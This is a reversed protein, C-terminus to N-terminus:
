TYIKEIAKRGEIELIGAYVQTTRISAHGLQRQVFRYNNNSAKLLFTAYTHRLSHISYHSSIGAVAIIAKFDKQLSRKSIKEGELNSLLPSDPAIDYGCSAKFTTFDLCTKRFKKSVWILRKKNGKGVVVISSRDQDILLNKHRLSAMESVRLGTNIALEIMFWRRMHTFQRNQIGHRKLENAAIVVKDLESVSLYKGEDVIWPSHRTIKSARKPEGKM